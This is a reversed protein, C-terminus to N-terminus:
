YILGELSERTYEKLVGKNYQTKLSQDVSPVNIDINLIHNQDNKLVFYITVKDGFEEKILDVNTKSAFYQDVFKEKLINRGEVKERAKTFEWACIPDIYIYFIHVVRGVKLSEKILQRMTDVNSFTGDHLFNVDNKLCYERLFDLGKNAAKQVVHANGKTGTDVNTKTYQPLFERIQDVDIHTFVTEVEGLKLGKSELEEKYNSARSNIAELYRTAFETKGAGPSGATFITLFGFRLPKKSLIFEDLLSDKNEKIYSCAEDQLKVEEGTFELM